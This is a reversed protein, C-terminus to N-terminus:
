LPLLAGGDVVLEAGNIYSAEDSALFLIAKAIEDPEAFRGAPSRRVFQQRAAEVVEPPANWRRGFGPTNVPGPSIANIRIRRAALEVGLTQVLSRTAAKCAAYVSFRPAGRQNSISTTVVVSAGDVLLPLAKQITFFTGKFLTANMEDFQAESVEAFPAPISNGANVLLIDLHGMGQQVAAMVADLDALRTIDCPLALASPGLAEAAAALTDPNRGTLAIRAGHQQLLRASALGIGSNGGTILANKGALKLM